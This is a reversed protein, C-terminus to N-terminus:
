QEVVSADTAPCADDRARAVRPLPCEVDTPSTDVPTHACEHIREDRAVLRDNHVGAADVAKPCREARAKSVRRVGGGLECHLSEGFCENRIQAQVCGVHCCRYNHWAVDAGADGPVAHQRM